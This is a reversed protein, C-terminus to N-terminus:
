ASIPVWGGVTSNPAEMDLLKCALLLGLGSTEFSLCLLLTLFTLFVYNIHTYYVILYM